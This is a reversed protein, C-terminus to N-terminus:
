AACSTSWATAAAPSGPPISRATSHRDLHLGPRRVPRLRRPVLRARHARHGPRPRGPSARVPFSRGALLHDRYRRRSQRRAQEAPLPHLRVALVREAARGRVAPVVVPSTEEPGPYSIGPPRPAPQSDGAVRRDPSPAAPALLDHAARRGPGARGTGQAAQHDTGSHRPSIAGPPTKPRRSRLEFAGEGEARYRAALRSIWGQSVGYSRAVEGQSRGEIVVATIVLRAKSM